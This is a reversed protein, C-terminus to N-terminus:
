QPAAAAPRNSTLESDRTTVTCVSPRLRTCTRRQRRKVAHQHRYLVLDVARRVRRRAPRPPQGRRAPALRVGRAHRLQPGAAGDEGALGVHVLEAGAGAADVRVVPVYYRITYRGVWYTTTNPIYGIGSDAEAPGRPVRVVGALDGATGGAARGGDDAGAEAGDGEADVSATRAAAM